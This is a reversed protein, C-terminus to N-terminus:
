AALLGAFEGESHRATVAARTDYRVGRYCMEITRAAMSTRSPVGDHEVGRYILPRAARPATTKTGPHSVGRYILNTM